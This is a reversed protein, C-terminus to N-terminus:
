HRAPWVVRPAPELSLVLNKAAVGSHVRSHWEGGEACQQHSRPHPSAGCDGSVVVRQFRLYAEIEGLGHSRKLRCLTLPWSKLTQTGIGAKGNIPM